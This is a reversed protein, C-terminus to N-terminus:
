SSAVAPLAIRFEVGPDQNVVDVSGGMAATLQKVIALGIGTGVTERTLESEPRYFLEFIKKLQAPPIGPGFDRVSLVITDGDSRAGLEVRKRAASASFKLANDVLNIIIQAIADTDVDIHRARTTDDASVVVDFGASSVQSDIKSRMQDLVTGVEIPQLEIQPDGRSLRALQLVNSILRSLRESEDHIYDFYTQQKEPEAWGERLIEGYMRISTLPTKLEHSVASVFDQQQQALRLQGMGLRYLAAFGLVFVVAVIATIWALARAGPTPPLQNLTFVLELADFPASFTARHLLTSTVPAARSGYSRTSRANVVQIVEDRYGVVLESIAALPSDSFPRVVIASLFADREILMGQTFQSGGLTVRRFLVLHGSDLQSFEFPDRDREFTDIPTTERASTIAGPPLELEASYAADEVAENELAESKKQLTDDLLLEDLRRQVSPLGSESTPGM